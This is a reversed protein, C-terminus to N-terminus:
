KTCRRREWRQIDLCKGLVEITANFKDTTKNRMRKNFVLRVSRYQMKIRKNM